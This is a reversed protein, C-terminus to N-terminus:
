EVIIGGYLSEKFELRQCLAIRKEKVLPPFFLSLFRIDFFPRSHSLALVTSFALVSVRSESRHGLEFPLPLAAPPLSLSLHACLPFYGISTFFSVSIDLPFPLRSIDM